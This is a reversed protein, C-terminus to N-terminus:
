QPVLCSNQPGLFALTQVWFKKIEPINKWESDFEVWEDGFVFVRGGLREQAVGVPGQPLTMITTNVGVGDDALNIFLGGYFSISTLGMTIPHPAFQTVPGSFWGASTNYTLGYAGIISNHKDTLAQTNTHGTMSMLGGGSEVWVRMDSSEQASYTRALYDVIVIDYDALVDPTIPTNIDNLVVSNLRAVTTGQDELWLQFEASPNAGENGLLAISLCDCIGDMGVDVDDIVGDCDDDLDNCVEEAPVCPPETTSTDGPEGTSSDSPDAVTSEGGDSSADATTSDGTDVGPGTTGSTTMPLAETTTEGPLTDSTAASSTSTSDISGTLSDSNSGQSDEASSPGESTPAPGTSTTGVGSDTAGDSASEKPSGADGCAVIFVLGWGLKMGHMGPLSDCSASGIAVARSM